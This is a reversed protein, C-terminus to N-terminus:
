KNQLVRNWTELFEVCPSFKLKLQWRRERESWDLRKDGVFIWFAQNSQDMVFM